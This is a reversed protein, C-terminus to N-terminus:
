NDADSTDVNQIYQFFFAILELHSEFKIREDVTHIRNEHIPDNNFLPTYRFINKTLNWYYRTDTNAPMVAPAVIVPETLNTFILDEFVHRTTGALYKWITDNYPSIPSPELVNAASIEFHGSVGDGELYTQNFGTVRLNHTKAVKLVRSVFIEEIDEITYEVSVRHNVKLKTSEPLANAKAGGSIVDVAQSTLILSKTLAVKSLSKMILGNAFKDFGARLIAKKVLSPMESNVALCQMYQLIPNKETLTTGFPNQEIMYVLESMIGISTHDPPISSHGGPTTLEVEIDLYGKEGVCPAAVYRGTLDDMRVGAGEDILAYISDRGLKEELFKAINQAGRMGSSEEDFGFAAIVSRQPHFDQSILLEITELIGILINKCDFSGRGYLIEGDYHGDFPPYTWDDLTDHQVPVVDQHAALMLPKLSADSGKWTYVLGYTNVTEVELNEYVTPFTKELYEHFKKFKIWLEPAEDVDPQADGVQTDVQVAGSLKKISAAKFKADHLVSLVTSNDKIYSLPLIKDQLPCIEQADTSQALLKIFSLINTTALLIIIIAIGGFGGIQKYSLKPQSKPTAVLPSTESAEESAETLNTPEPALPTSVPDSM